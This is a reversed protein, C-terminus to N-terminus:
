LSLRALVQLLRETIMGSCSCGAKAIVRVSDVYFVGPPKVVLHDAVAGTDKTQRARYYAFWRQRCQLNFQQRGM